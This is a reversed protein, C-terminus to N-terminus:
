AFRITQLKFTFKQVEACTATAQTVILFLCSASASERSSSRLGSATNKAHVILQQLPDTSEAKYLAERPVPFRWTSVGLIVDWLSLRFVKFSGVEM